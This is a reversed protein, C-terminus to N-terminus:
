QIQYEIMNSGDLGISVARGGASGAYQGNELILLRDGLVSVTPNYVDLDEALIQPESGDLPVRLLDWVTIDVMDPATEYSELYVSDGSTALLWCGTSPAAEYVTRADSGDPAISTVTFRGGGNELVVLRDGSSSLGIFSGLSGTYVTETQGGDFRYRVITGATTDAYYASDPMVLFSSGVPRDISCRLTCASGDEAMTTVTTRRGGEGSASAVVYLTDDYIVIQGVNLYSGDPCGFRDSVLTRDDTGDTAISHIEHPLSGDMYSGYSFFLRDGGVAMAGVQYTTSDVPYILEVEGSGPDARCIGGVETSYFFDYGDAEASVTGRNAASNAAAQDEQTRGGLLQPLAFAAVAVVAVAAVAAILIPLKSRAKRPGAASAPQAPAAAGQAPASGTPPAATASPGGAPAGAPAAGATPPAPAVPTSEPSSPAAAASAAPEPSAPGASPAATGAGVDGEVGMVQPGPSVAPGAPEPLRNGCSPCFRAGDAVPKGCKPCFM